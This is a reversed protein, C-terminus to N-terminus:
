IVTLMTKWIELLTLLQKTASCYCTVRLGLLFYMFLANYSWQDNMIVCFTMLIQYFIFQLLKVVSQKCTTKVNSFTKKM